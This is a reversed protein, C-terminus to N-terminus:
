AGPRVAVRWMGPALAAAALIGAYFGFSAAVAISVGIMGAGLGKVALYGVGAAVVVRSTVAVFPWLPRGAGQAAFTLMFALGFLGYFPAVVRLYTSGMAIVGEDASFLGIWAMPWIAVVLGISGTVAAGVLATRWAITRAREGQGAGMNIGVMPIVSSALGFLIPIMAYDLRSAIGYAALADTGLLGVVGTVLIVALNTMVTGLAAPLGVSLIDAVHRRELRMWRLRPGARGAHLVALLALSAFGYYVAFALGAGAIGLGPLPGLGFILLPSAPIMVVAGVLTVAAPVIVNGAGRLAASACNVIWVGISGAFLANSYTVAAALSADRGGLVRYIAPGAWFALASFVAGFGIALVVAHFALADADERRGAGVARAVASSIGNGIGGASMTIMLMLAPFVLAVGALADTGLFGVYYAEAVNVATQALLVGLTPLAMRFFTPLIPGSLIAARRDMPGSAPPRSASTVPPAAAGLDAM